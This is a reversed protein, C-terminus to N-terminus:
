YLLFRLLRLHRQHVHPVASCGLDEPAAADASVTSFRHTWEPYLCSKPIISSQNKNLEWLLEISAAHIKDYYELRINYYKEKRVRIPASTLPSAVARKSREWTNIVLKRDIWLRVGEDAGSHRIAFRIEGSDPARVRGVWRVSFEDEPVGPAPSGVGWHFRVPGEIRTVAMKRLDAKKYYTAVLGEGVKCEKDAPDCACINSPGDSETGNTGQGPDIVDTDNTSDGEPQSVDVSDTSEDACGSCTDTSDSCPDSTKESDVREEDTEFASDPEVETAVEWDDEDLKDVSADAGDTITFGLFEEECGSLTVLCCVLSIKTAFEIALWFVGASRLSVFVGTPMIANFVAARSWRTTEPTDDNIVSVQAQKPARLSAVLVSATSHFVRGM